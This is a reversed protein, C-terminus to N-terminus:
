TPLGNDERLKLVMTILESAHKKSLTRLAADQERVGLKILYAMQRDTITGDRGPQGTISGELNIKPAYRGMKKAKDDVDNIEAFIERQDQDDSAIFENGAQTILEPYFEQIQRLDLAWDEDTELEGIVEREAATPFRAIFGLELLTRWESM